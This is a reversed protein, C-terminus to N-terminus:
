TGASEGSVVIRSLDAAISPHTTSLVTNLETHIWKWLDELDSLVDLGSAEPILRYDPNVIIFSQAISYELLWTPFWEFFNRSGM